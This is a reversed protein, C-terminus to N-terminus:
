CLGKEQCIAKAELFEEETEAFTQSGDEGTLVYYM